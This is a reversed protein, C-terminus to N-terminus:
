PSGKYSARVSGGKDGGMKGLQGGWLHQQERWLIDQKWLHDVLGRGALHHVTRGSKTLGKPPVLDCSGEPCLGATM